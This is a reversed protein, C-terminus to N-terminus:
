ASDGHISRAHAEVAAATGASFECGLCVIPGEPDNGYIRRRPTPGDARRIRQQRKALTDKDDM